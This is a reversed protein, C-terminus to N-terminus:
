MSGLQDRWRTLDQGGARVPRYLADGVVQSRRTRTSSSELARGVM